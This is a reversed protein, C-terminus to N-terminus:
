LSPPYEEKVRQYDEMIPEEDDTVQQVSKVEDIYFKLMEEIGNKLTIESSSCSKCAGILKLFVTGTDEDFRVFKIDGGDEQIAPQIRTILLENILAVVEDEDEYGDLDENEASQQGLINIYKQNIVAQGSTLHETLISFIEPKLLSWSHKEGKIVTIFNYGFLISKISKDNVSLLKFALESKNLADKIGTIELTPTNPSPLFKFESPVFKLANENPTSQTQIFLSRLQGVLGLRRYTYRSAFM